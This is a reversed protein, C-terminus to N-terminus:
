NPLAPVRKPAHVDVEDTGFLDRAAGMEPLIYVVGNSHAFTPSVVTQYFTAPVNICGYSIRNDQATTSKLRQARREVPTGKVMPHLAISAAYDILLIEGGHIDRSLSALFRGAPTIRDHPLIAAIKLDGTGQTSRDGRSMGLLAAATGKIQGAADFVYVHANVKDILVYPLGANDGSVIIWRAARQIQSSTAQGNFGIPTTQVSAIPHMPLAPLMAPVASEAHATITNFVLLLGLGKLRIGTQM